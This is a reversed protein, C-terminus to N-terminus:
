NAGLLLMAGTPAPRGGAPENTLAFAKPRTKVPAGNVVSLYGAADPVVLGASLPKDAVVWLQYVRGPPLPPLNTAIFVLGQSPSWLVRGTAVPAGKQGALDVRALDRANLVANTLRTNAASAELTTIRETMTELRQENETLQARLRAADNRSTWAYAGAVIAAISAAAALWGLSTRRDFSVQRQVLVPFERPAPEVERVQSLVRERLAPPLPVPDLAQALGEVLPTLEQVEQRCIACEQLHGTFRRLEDANLANLVYGGSLEVLVDHDNTM